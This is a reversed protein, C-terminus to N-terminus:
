FFKETKKLRPRRDFFRQGAAKEKALNKIPRAERKFFKVDAQNGDAQRVL